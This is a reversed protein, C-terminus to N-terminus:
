DLVSTSRERREAHVNARKLNIPKGWYRLIRLRHLNDVNKNDQTFSIVM